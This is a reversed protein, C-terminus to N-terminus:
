KTLVYNYSIVRLPAMLPLFLLLISVKLYYARCIRENLSITALPEKIHTKQFLEETLEGLV